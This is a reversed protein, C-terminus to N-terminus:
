EPLDSTKLGRLLPFDVSALGNACTALTSVEGVTRLVFRTRKM